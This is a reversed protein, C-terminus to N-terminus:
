VECELSVVESVKTLSRENPPTAAFSTLLVLVCAIAAITALPLRMMMMMMMTSPRQRIDDLRAQITSHPRKQQPFRDNPTKKCLNSLSYRGRREDLSTLLRRTVPSERNRFILQFKKVIPEVSFLFKTSVGTLM